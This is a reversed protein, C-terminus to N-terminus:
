VKGPKQRTRAGNGGCDVFENWFLHKLNTDGAWHLGRDPDKKTHGDVGQSTRTENGGCDVFCVWVLHKSHTDGM